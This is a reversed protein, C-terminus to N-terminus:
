EEAPVMSRNRYGGDHLSYFNIRRFYANFTCTKNQHSCIYYNQFYPVFQAIPISIFLMNVHQTKAIM